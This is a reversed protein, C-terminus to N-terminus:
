SRWVLSGNEDRKPKYGFTCRCNVLERASGNARDGPFKMRVDGVQFMETQEVKTGNLRKHTDRERGDVRTIWVKEMVLGQEDVALEKAQNLAMTSETRAIRLAQWKYFNPQKVTAKIRDAMEGVLENNQQSIRVERVVADILTQGISRVNELGYDSFWRVLWDNVRQSFFPLPKLRKQETETTPPYDRQLKRLYYSGYESITTYYFQFLTRELEETHINLAIVIEANEYTLNDFPIRDLTNRFAKLLMRMAKREYVAHHMTFHNYEQEPNMNSKNFAM